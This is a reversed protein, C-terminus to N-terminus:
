TLLGNQKAETRRKQCGYETDDDDAADDNPYKHSLLLSVSFELRTLSATAIQYGGQAHAGHAM